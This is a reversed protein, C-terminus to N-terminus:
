DNRRVRQLSLQPTWRLFSNSLLASYGPNTFSHEDVLFIGTATGCGADGGGGGKAIKQQQIKFRKHLRQWIETTHPTSAKSVVDMLTQLEVLTALGLFANALGLKLFVLIFVFLDGLLCYTQLKRGPHDFHWAGLAVKFSKPFSIDVTQQCSDFFAFM